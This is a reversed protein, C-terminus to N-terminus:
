TKDIVNEYYEKLQEKFIGVKLANELFGAHNLDNRYQRIQYSIKVIEKGLTELIQYVEEKHSNALKKRSM